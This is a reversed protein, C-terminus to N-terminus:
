LKLYRGQCDNMHSCMQSYVLSHEPLIPGDSCRQQHHDPYLMFSSDADWDISSIIQRFINFFSISMFKLFRLTRILNGEMLNSIIQLNEKLSGTLMSSVEKICEQLM